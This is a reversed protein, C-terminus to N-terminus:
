NLNHDSYKPWIRPPPCRFGAKWGIEAQREAEANSDFGIRILEYISELELQRFARWNNEPADPMDTELAKLRPSPPM